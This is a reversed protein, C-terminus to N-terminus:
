KVLISGIDELTHDKFFLLDTDRKRIFESIINFDPHASIDGNFVITRRGEAIINGACGGIFGYNFGPLSIHGPSILLVDTDFKELAKAIGKDSTIFSRDDVPLCSCRSYGQPVNIESIQPFHSRAANLLESSTYKLNHIFYKGTCVANYLINGPYDKKLKETNGFFIDSNEWLGLQCMHIDAHTSIADYVESLGKKIFNVKFGHSYLFTKLSSCALPSIYIETTAKMKEEKIIKSVAIIDCQTVKLYIDFNNTQLIYICIM